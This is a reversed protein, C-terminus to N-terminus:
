SWSMAEHESMSRYEHQSSEKEIHLAMYLHKIAIYDSVWSLQANNWMSNPREFRFTTLLNSWPGESNFELPIEEQSHSIHWVQCRYWWKEAIQNLLQALISIISNWCNMDINWFCNLNEKTNDNHDFQLCNMKWNCSFLLNNALFFRDDYQFRTVNYPWTSNPWWHHSRNSLLSKLSGTTVNTFQDSLTLNWWFKSSFVCIEM